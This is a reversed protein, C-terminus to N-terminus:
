EDIKFRDLLNIAINLKTLAIEHKVRESLKMESLSKSNLNSRVEYLLSIIYKKM